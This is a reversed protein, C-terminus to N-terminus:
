RLKGGTPRDPRACLTRQAKLPTLSGAMTAHVVFCSTEHRLRYGPVAQLTYVRRGPSIELIGVGAAHDQDRVELHLRCARRHHSQLTLRWIRIPHGEQVSDPVMTLDLVTLAHPRSCAPQGLAPPPALMCAVLGWMYLLTVAPVSYMSRAHRVVGKRPVPTEQGGEHREIPATHDTRGAGM